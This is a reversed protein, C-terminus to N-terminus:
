QQRDDLVAHLSAAAKATHSKVAARSIGVAAAIQADTLDSYYRLVIVERQRAPLERLVSILTQDELSTMAHRGVGTRAPGAASRGALPRHRLTSRSRTVVAQRLYSVTDSDPRRRAQRVAVFSDQVIQEASSTDGVLLATLRVLFSYHQNYLTILAREDDLGARSCPWRM